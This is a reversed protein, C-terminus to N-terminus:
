IMLHLLREIQTPTHLCTGGFRVLGKSLNHSLQTPSGLTYFEESLEVEIEELISIRKLTEWV